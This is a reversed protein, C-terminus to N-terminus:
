AMVLNKKSILLLGLFTLMGNVALIFFGFTFGNFWEKSNSDLIYSLVPALVAIPVIWKDRITRKTILGFTFLGLIPGYTYGALKLIVDIISKNDIIKFIM